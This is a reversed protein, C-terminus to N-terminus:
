DYYRRFRRMGMGQALKRGREKKARQEAKVEELMGEVVERLHRGPGAEDLTGSLDKNVEVVKNFISPYTAVVELRLRYTYVIPM